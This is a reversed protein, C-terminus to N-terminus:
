KRQIKPMKEIMMSAMTLNLMWSIFNSKWRPRFYKNRFINMYCGLAGHFYKTQVRFNNNSFLSLNFKEIDTVIFQRKVVKEDIKLIPLEKTKEVELVTVVTM